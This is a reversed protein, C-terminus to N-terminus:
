PITVAALLSLVVAMLFFIGLGCLAAAIFQIFVNGARRWIVRAAAFLVLAIVGDVAIAAM